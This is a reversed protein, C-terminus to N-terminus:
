RGFIGRLISGAGPLISGSSPASEPEGTAGQGSQAGGGDGDERGPPGSMGSMDMGLVAMTQSKSRVRVTWEPQWGKPASAPKAPHSLWTEPGYAIMRLMAGGAAAEDKGGGASFIGKPVACERTEPSLLVRDKVWKAATVPTLYDFLGLGADGNESSSWLVMDEGAMGMAHLHYAQANPVPLWTILISDDLGGDTQLKIAQLLDQRDGLTFKMTEPIGEGGVQHEGQLSTSAKPNVTNKENPYLAYQANVAASREPAHRGALVSGWQAPNSALNIVKPQGKRVDESCGWYLLIRGKIDPKEVPGSSEGPAKYSPSPPVLPLAEGMGVSPPILLLAEQGPRRPNLLALDIVRDPPFAGMIGPTSGQQIYRGSAHGYVQSGGGKGGFLSGIMGGVGGDPMSPMGTMTSTSLDMWLQVPATQASAGPPLSLVLAWSLVPAMASWSCVWSVPKM